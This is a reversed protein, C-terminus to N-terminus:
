DGRIIVQVFDLHVRHSGFGSGSAATPRVSRRLALWVVATRSPSLVLAGVLAVDLVWCDALVPLVVAVVVEGVLRVM